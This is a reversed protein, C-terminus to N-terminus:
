KKPAPAPQVKAKRAEEAMNKAITQMQSTLSSLGPSFTKAKDALTYANKASTIAGDLDGSVGAKYGVVLSQFGEAVKVAAKVLPEAPRAILAGRAALVARAVAWEAQEINKDTLMQLTNSVETETESLLAQTRQGALFKDLRYYILAMEGRTLEAGPQLSGDKKADITSVAFAYRMVPFSWDNPDRVDSALPSKLDAVTGKYDLKRSTLLMKLFAAKTVVKNPNFTPVSDVIGMLRAAEAYSTFWQGAPVDTFSSTTIKSLEEPKVLAAVLVKAAQARTVKDNPKFLPASQMIGKEVLYTAAPLIPSDKTLDTFQGGAAYSVGPLVAVLISTALSFRLSSLTMLNHFLLLLTDPRYKGHLSLDSLIPVARSSQSSIDERPKCFPEPPFPM